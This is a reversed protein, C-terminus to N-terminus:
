AAPPVRSYVLRYMRPASPRVPQREVYGGAVLVDLADRVTREGLGLRSCLALQKVERWQMPDLVDLLHLYVTMPSGRLSRDDKADQFAPIM